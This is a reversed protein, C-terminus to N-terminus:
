CYRCELWVRCFGFRLRPCNKGCRCIQGNDVYTAIPAASIRYRVAGCMCGGSLKEPITRGDRAAESVRGSTSAIM